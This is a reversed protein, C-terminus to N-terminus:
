INLVRFLAVGTAVSVNLSEKGGRMPIEAVIDCLKLISKAVGDVENGVVFAVKSRAKVKKYDISNKSQEIAIIHYGDRKLKKVVSLTTKSYEWVVSKEAGLATKAIEKVERNFRDLPTPTTGCLYIKGVGACDATRFISGVNHRSRINDLILVSNMTVIYCLIFSFLFRPCLTRTNPNLVIDKSHQLKQSFIKRGKYYGTIETIVGDGDIVLGLSTVLRLAALSKATAELEIVSEDDTLSDEVVLNVSLKDGLIQIFRAKVLYRGIENKGDSTKSIGAYVSTVHSAVVRLSRPVEDIMAVVVLVYVFLLIAKM